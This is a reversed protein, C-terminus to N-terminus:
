INSKIKKYYNIIDTVKKDIVALNKKTQAVFINKYIFFNTLYEKMSRNEILKNLYSIRRNNEDNIRLIENVIAALEKTRKLEEQRVLDTNELYLKHINKVTEENDKKLSGIEKKKKGIEGDIIKMLNIIREGLANTDEDVKTIIEDLLHVKHNQHINTNNTNNIIDFDQNSSNVLCELCCFKDCTKCWFDNKKTHEKCSKPQYVTVLKQNDSSRFAFEQPQQYKNEIIQAESKIEKNEESSSNDDYRNDREQIQNNRSQISNKDQNTDQEVITVEKYKIVSLFKIIKQKQLNDYTDKKIYNLNNMNILFWNGPIYPFMPEKDKNKKANSKEDDDDRKDDKNSQISNNLNNEENNINIRSKEKILFDKIRGQKAFILPKNKDKLDSQSATEYNNIFSFNDIGVRAFVVYQEENIKKKPNDIIANANFEILFDNLHFDPGKELYKTVKFLSSQGQNEEDKIKEILDPDNIFVYYYQHHPNSYMKEPCWSNSYDRLPIYSTIQVDKQYTLEFLLRIKSDTKQM